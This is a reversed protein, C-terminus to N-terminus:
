WQLPFSPLLLSVLVAICSSMRQGLFMFCPPFKTWWEFRSSNGVRCGSPQLKNYWCSCCIWFTMWSSPQLWLQLDNAFNLKYHIQYERKGSKHHQEVHKGVHCSIARTMGLPSSRSCAKAKEYWPQHIEGEMPFDWHCSKFTHLCTIADLSFPKTPYVLPIPVSRNRERERHWCRRLQPM